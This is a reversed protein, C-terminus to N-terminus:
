ALMIIVVIMSSDGSLGEVFMKDIKLVDILLSKM